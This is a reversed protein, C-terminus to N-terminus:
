PPAARAAFRRRLAWEVKNGVLWAAVFVAGIPVIMVFGGDTRESIPVVRDAWAEYRTWVAHTNRYRTEILQSAGRDELISYAHLDSSTPIIGGPAPLLFTFRSGKDKAAVIDKWSALRVREGPGSPTMERYAVNFREPPMGGPFNTRTLLIHSVATYTLPTGIVFIAIFVAVGALTATVSRPPLPKDATPDM